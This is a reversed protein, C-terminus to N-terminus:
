LAQRGAPFPKYIYNEELFKKLPGSRSPHRLRRIITTIHNLTTSLNIEEELGIQRFTKPMGDVLGFRLQTLRNYSKPLLFHQRQENPSNEFASEVLEILLASKQLDELVVSADIGDPDHWSKANFPHLLDALARNNHKLRFIVDTLAFSSQALTLKEVEKLRSM